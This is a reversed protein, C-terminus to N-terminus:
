AHAKKLAIRMGRHQHLLAKREEEQRAVLLVRCALNIEYLYSQVEEEKHREQLALKTKMEYALQARWQQQDHRESQPADQENPVRVM